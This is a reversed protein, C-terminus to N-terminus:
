LFEKSITKYPEFVGFTKDELAESQIVIIKNLLILTCLFFTLERENM